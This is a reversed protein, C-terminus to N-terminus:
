YFYACVRQWAFAQACSVVFIVTFSYQIYVYWELMFSKGRDTDRGGSVRTKGDGPGTLFLWHVLVNSGLIKTHDEKGTKYFQLNGARCFVIM